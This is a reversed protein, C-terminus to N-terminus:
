KRNKLIIALQKYWFFLELDISGEMRRSQAMLFILDMIGTLACHLAPESRSFYVHGQIIHYM